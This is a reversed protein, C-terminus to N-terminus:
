KCKPGDYIMGLGLGGIYGVFDSVCLVSEYSLSISVSLWFGQVYFCDMDVHAIVRADSSEPKAVPM